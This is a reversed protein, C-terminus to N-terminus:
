VACVVFSATYSRHPPTGVALYRMIVEDSSVEGGWQGVAEGGM